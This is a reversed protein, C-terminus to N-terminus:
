ELALWLVNTPRRGSIVKAKRELAQACASLPVFKGNKEKACYLLTFVDPASRFGLPRQQVKDAKYRIEALGHCEGHLHKFYTEHWEDAPLSALIKLRSAFRARCQATQADYWARIEDKGDDGVYCRFAWQLPM